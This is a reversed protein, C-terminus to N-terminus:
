YFESAKRLISPVQISAKRARVRSAGLDLQQELQLLDPVKLLSLDEGLLHRCSTDCFTLVASSSSLFLKASLNFCVKIHVFITWFPMKESRNRPLLVIM